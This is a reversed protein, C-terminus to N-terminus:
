RVTPRDDQLVNGVAEVQINSLDSANTYAVTVVRGIQELAIGPISAVYGRRERPLLTFETRDGVGIVRGARDEVMVVLRASGLTYSSGNVLVGELRVGGAEGFRIPDPASLLVEPVSFKQQWVVSAVEITGTVPTEPSAFAPLVVWVEAGPGVYAQGSTQYIQTRSTTYFTATYVFQTASIRLNPNVVKAYATYSGNRVPLISPASVQLPEPNQFAPRATIHYKQYNWGYAARAGVRLLWYGPVLAVVCGVLVVRQWPAFAYVAELFSLWSLQIANKREESLIQM